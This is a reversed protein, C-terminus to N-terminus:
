PQTATPQTSAAQTLWQAVAADEKVADDTLRTFYPIDPHLEVQRQWFQV